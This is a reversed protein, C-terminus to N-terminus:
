KGGMLTVGANVLTCLFFIIAAFIIAAPTNKEEIATKAVSTLSISPFLITRTIHSVLALIIVINSSFVIVSFGSAGFIVPFFEVAVGLIIIILALLGIRILESKVNFQKFGNM